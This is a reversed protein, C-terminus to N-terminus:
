AAATRELLDRLSWVHDTLGAMMAPTCGLTMHVRSYNYYAIFMAIAARHSRPMKSFANTLRTFRRLTM